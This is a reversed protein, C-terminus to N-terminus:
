GFISCIVWLILGVAVIFAGAVALWFVVWLILPLIFIGLVILFVLAIFGFIVGSIM